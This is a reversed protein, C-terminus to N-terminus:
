SEHSEQVIQAQREQIESQPSVNVTQSSNVTGQNGVGGTFNTFIGNFNNITQTIKGLDIELNTIEIQLNCLDNVKEKGIVKTLNEKDYELREIIETEGKVIREQKELLDIIKFKSVKDTIIIKLEELDKKKRELLKIKGDSEEKLKTLKKELEENSIKLEKVESELKFMIERTEEQEFTGGKKIHNVLALARNKLTKYKTELIENKKQLFLFEEINPNKEKLILFDEKCLKWNHDYLKLIESLGTLDYSFEKLNDPLFEIGSSINKNIGIELTSLKTLDKIFDLNTLLNNHVNLLQISPCNEITLKETECNKVIFRTLNPLNKLTLQRIKESDSINIETLNPYNEIVLDGEFDECDIPIKPLNKPFESNFWNQNKTM